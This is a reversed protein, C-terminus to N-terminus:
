AKCKALMDQWKVEHKAVSGKPVQLWFYNLIAQEPAIEKLIKLTIFPLSIRLPLHEEIFRFRDNIQQVTEDALNHGSQRCIMLHKDLYYRFNNARQSRKHKVIKYDNGCCHYLEKYDFMVGDLPEFLGCNESCLENSFQRLRLTDQKCHRCIKVNWDVGSSPLNPPYTLEQPTDCLQEKIHHLRELLNARLMEKHFSDLSRLLIFNYEVELQNLQETYEGKTALNRVEALQKAFSDM